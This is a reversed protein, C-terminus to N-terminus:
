SAQVREMEQSEKRPVVPVRRLWLMIGQIRIGIMGLLPAMPATLQLTLLQLVGARRRTGRMTAVFAPQNDRHLSIRVDLHEGPRPAKVLYHGDVGNFPSIYLKKMVMVPEDDSPPM